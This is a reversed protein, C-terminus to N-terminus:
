ATMPFAARRRTAPRYRCHKEQKEQVNGQLGLIRRRLLSAWL